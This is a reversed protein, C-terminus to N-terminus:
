FDRSLVANEVLRNNIEALIFINLFFDSCFTLYNETFKVDEIIDRETFTYDCEVM